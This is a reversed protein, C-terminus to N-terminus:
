HKDEFLSLCLFYLLTGQAKNITMCYTLRLPFQHRIIRFNIPKENHIKTRRFCFTRKELPQKEYVHIWKIYIVINVQFTITIEENRPVIDRYEDVSVRKGNVKEITWGPTVRCYAQSNPYVDLVKMDVVKLGLYSNGEFTM